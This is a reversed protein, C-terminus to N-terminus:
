ERPAEVKSRGSQVDVSEKKGWISQPCSTIRPGSHEFIVEHVHEDFRRSLIFLQTTFHRYLLFACIVIFVILGLNFM